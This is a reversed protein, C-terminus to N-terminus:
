PIHIASTGEPTQKQCNARGQWCPPCIVRPHMSWLLPWTAKMTFCRKSGTCNFVICTWVEFICVSYLLSCSRPLWLTCAASMRFLIMLHSSSSSSSSSSSTSCMAISTLIMMCAHLSVQHHKSAIAQPSQCARERHLCQSWRWGTCVRSETCMHVTPVDQVLGELM